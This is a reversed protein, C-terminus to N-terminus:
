YSDKDIKNYLSDPFPLNFEAFDEPTMLLRIADYKVSYLAPFQKKLYFYRNSKITSQSILIKKIKDFEFICKYQARRGGKGPPIYDIIKVQVVIGNKKIDLKELKNYIFISVFFFTIFLISIFYKHRFLLEVLKNKKM